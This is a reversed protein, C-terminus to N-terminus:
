RGLNAIEGIEGTCDRGRKVWKWLTGEQAVKGSDVNKWGWRDSPRDQLRIPPRGDKRQVPAYSLQESRM